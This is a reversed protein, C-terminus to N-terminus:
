SITGTITITIGLTGINELTKLAELACDAITAGYGPLEPTTASGDAWTNYFVFPNMKSFANGWGFQFSFNVLLDDTNISKVGDEGETIISNEGSLIIEIPDLATPAVIYKETIATTYNASEEVTITASFTIKTVGNKALNLLNDEDLTLSASSVLDEKGMGNNLLWPNTITATEEETPAGFYVDVGDKNVSVIKIRKDVVSDVQINGEATEQTKSTIIWSAFGAGVMGVCLLFSVAMTVLKGKM